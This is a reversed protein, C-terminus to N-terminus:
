RFFFLGLIVWTLVVGYVLYATYTALRNDSAM